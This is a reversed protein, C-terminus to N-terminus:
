ACGGAGRGRAKLLGSLSSIWHDDDHLVVRGGFVNLVDDLPHDLEAEVYVAGGACRLGDEGTYAGGALEVHELELDEGADM